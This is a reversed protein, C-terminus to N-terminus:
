LEPWCLVYTSANKTPGPVLICKKKNPFDVNGGLFTKCREDCTDAESQDIKRSDDADRHVELLLPGERRSDGNASRTKAREDHSWDRLPIFDWIIEQFTYFDWRWYTSVNASVLINRFQDHKYLNYM